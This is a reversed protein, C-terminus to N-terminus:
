KRGNYIGLLIPCKCLPCLNCTYIWRFICDMHFVHKCKLNYIKGTIKEFCINCITDKAPVIQPVVSIKELVTTGIRKPKKQLIPPSKKANNAEECDVPVYVAEWMSNRQVDACIIPPSEHPRNANAVLRCSRLDKEPPIRRVEIDKEPEKRNQEESNLSISVASETSSDDDRVRQSVSMVDKESTDSSEDRIVQSSIKKHTM